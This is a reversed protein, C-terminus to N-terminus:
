RFLNTRKMMTNGDSMNYIHVSGDYGSSILYSDELFRLGFPIKQHKDLFYKESNLQLDWVLITGDIMGIGLLLQNQSISSQAINYITDSEFKLYPQIKALNREEIEM